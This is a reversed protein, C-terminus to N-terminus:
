GLDSVVKEVSEYHKRWVLTRELIKSAYRQVSKPYRAREKDVKYVNTPGWNYAALADYRNGRFQYELRTIYEVGLEINLEPNTLEPPGDVGYKQEFVEKATRPMLQMLGRAGVSSRATDLFRSEVSIIAAIYFPDIEQKDAVQVILKAVEGSNKLSPRHMAILGAIFSMQKKQKLVELEPTAEHEARLVRTSEVLADHAIQDDNLLSAEFNKIAELQNDLHREADRIAREAPSISAFQSTGLDPLAVASVSLYGGICVAFLSSATVMNAVTSLKSRKAKGGALKHSNLSSYIPSFSVTRTDGPRTTLRKRSQRNLTHRKRSSNM